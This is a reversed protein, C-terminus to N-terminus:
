TLEFGTGSQIAYLLREKMVKESSYTPLKLINFCTSSTPLKEGDRLISVRQLTFPPNMSGFGLPPPRECSTVFRLLDAQEKSSMSAVVNWFRNVTRDIGTFGGAYRSNSRLDDVDLKGDSAGSILVQLEPENFLRLWSQDIVEWLGRTFAQSQEKVRDVVYYKSVLGIYRQKNTNTVEVKDGEPILLVEQNSGFSDNTVTFTLCLDRADGDYTKLFMLNNYLQPDITSLDPLMHLFNYDGRLFSLFFHAFRPNITIGEYLAKGLIRGLFAFLDTHEIGHAARSSPNPYMCSGASAETLEFLAYNPNFAIACLDTWFEKFLGGADVGTEKTGAQNYYQVAIRRRMNPGLNNMTALGDELIRGRTIRVPFGPKLPNSHFPNSSNEGQIEIRSTTVIRDFLKLRRKFSILFPCIQLVPLNLLAVYDEHKKCQGMENHLLEAVTWHKPLCLPRRSSRDYLDRMTRACASVLATGFYTRELETSAVDIERCCARYLLKKMVKISRRIQHIPIPKDMDFLEIDDTVILTHSLTSAFLFLLVSAIDGGGKKGNVSFIQLSRVPTTGIDADVVRKLDKKLADNSQLLAWSVRTIPTAFCLTNLLSIVHLEPKAVASTSSSEDYGGGGWRALIVAYARCVAFFLEPDFAKEDPDTPSGEALLRSQMSTDKLRSGAEDTPKENSAFLNGVKTKLKKAWKSSKWFGTTREIKAEKAAMIAPTEFMEQEQQRDKDNKQALIEDTALTTPFVKRVVSDVVLSRCQRLVQPSVVVANQDVWEIVSDRSSFTSLPVQDLTRAVVNWYIPNDAHMMQTLNGLLAQYPTAHCHKLSADPLNLDWSLTLLYELLQRHLFQRVPASVKETLLPVTLIEPAVSTKPSGQLALMLFAGMRDPPVPDFLLLYRAIGLLDLSASTRFPWDAQYSWRTPSVPFLIAKAQPVKKSSEQLFKWCSPVSPTTLVAMVTLRLLERLRFIGEPSTWTSLLDELSPLVAEELVGNLDKVSQLWWVCRVLLVPDEQPRSKNHLRQAVERLAHTRAIWGRYRTQVKVVLQSQLALEKRIERQEQAQELPTAAPVVSSTTTVKKPVTSVPTNKKAGGQQKAKQQLRRARERDARRKSANGSLEEAFM